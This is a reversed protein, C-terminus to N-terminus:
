ALAWEKQLAKLIIGEPSRAKRKKLQGKKITEWYRIWTALVADLDSYALNRQSLLSFDWLTLVVSTEKEEYSEQPDAPLAKRLTTVWPRLASPFNDKVHAEVIACWLSLFM